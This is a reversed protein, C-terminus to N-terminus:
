LSSLHSAPFVRVLHSPSSSTDMSLDNFGSSCLGGDVLQGWSRCLSQLLCKCWFMALQPSLASTSILDYGLDCSDTSFGVSGLLDLIAELLGTRALLAEAPFDYLADVLDKAIDHQGLRIRVEINYLSREEEETLVYACPIQYGDTALNSRLISGAGRSVAGSESSLQKTSM